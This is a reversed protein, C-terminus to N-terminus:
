TTKGHTLGRYKGMPDFGCMYMGHVDVDEGVAAKIQGMISHEGRCISLYQYHMIARTGAAANSRLDGAFGPIAPIVVIVRFKRKEKVARICADAISRGVTNLIPPQQDGTATVIALGGATLRISSLRPQMIQLPCKSFFQNEMYVYHNANRILESYANQISHEVLIGSSWDASSRVIQATVTGQEGRPKTELPSLPHLTYKGVPYLPRQVGVLDEDEGQRGRLELWDVGPHRKYKDRKVLNWRLVFHEAIDYVADGILGMAVDHWPMRGYKSKDLENDRWEEVSQFDMIRNNNFDQGPFVEDEITEPHVDSLVHQHNDWRGFCM